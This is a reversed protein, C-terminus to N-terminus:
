ARPTEAVLRLKPLWFTPVVLAACVTVNLLVPVTAMVMVLMAMVPVLLPAKAWVLVQPLERAAPALQEMLTVKVGAALPLWVALTVMVSLAAPLGCDTVRLPVPVAGPRFREAVLRLKPLSFTPVVVVAWVTVNLLVPLVATLMVLIAMVPVLLPAKAWVLVQPLERAAPALQVMLTVKVGAAFPLWVALTVM